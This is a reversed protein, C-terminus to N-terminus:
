TATARSWGPTLAFSLDGDPAPIPVVFELGALLSALPPPVAVRVDDTVPEALAALLSPVVFRRGDDAVVRLEDGDWKAVGPVHELSDKHFVAGLVARGHLDRPDM